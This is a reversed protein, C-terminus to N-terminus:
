IEKLINDYNRRYAPKIYVEIHGFIVELLTAATSVHLLEHQKVTFPDDVITLGALSEEIGSQISSAQDGSSMDDLSGVEANNNHLSKNLAGSSSEVNSLSLGSETDLITEAFIQADDGSAMGEAPRDDLNNSTGRTRKLSSAALPPSPASRKM